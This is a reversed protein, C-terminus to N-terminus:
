ENTPIPIDRERWMQRLVKQITNYQPAWDLENKMEAYSVAIDGLRPPKASWRLGSKAINSVMDVIDRISTAKGLGIECHITGHNRTYDIAATIAWCVDSIHIFDREGYESPRGMQAYLPLYKEVGVHDFCKKVFNDHQNIGGVVNELRLIAYDLTSTSLVKEAYRKSLGYPTDDRAAASSAFVFSKIQKAQEALAILDITRALNNQWYKVPDDLSEELDIDAALHVITNVGTALLSHATMEALENGNKKDYGICPERSAAMFNTGIYGRDGTVLIM